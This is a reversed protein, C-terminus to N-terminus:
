RIGLRRRLEAPDPLLDDPQGSERRRRRLWECDDLLALVRERAEGGAAVAEAPTLGEEDRVALMKDTSLSRTLERALGELGEQLPLFHQEMIMSTPQPPPVDVGHRRQEAAASDPALGADEPEGMLEQATQTSRGIVVAGPAADRVHAELAAMRAESNATLAFSGSPDSRITGLNTLTGPEVKGVYEIQDEGTQCWCHSPLSELYARHRAADQIPPQPAPLCRNELTAWAAAADAVQVTTECFRYEEGDATVFRQPKLPSLELLLREPFRDVGGPAVPRHPFLECARRRQTRDVGVIGALAQLQAGDPLLRTVVLDLRDVSLSFLRDRLEVSQPGGVLSRLRLGSGHSVWTVEYLDLPITLWRGLLEREDARLLHGRDALFRQAAGGEFAALDLALMTAEPAGIACALVRDLTERRAGRQAYTAIMAYLAVARTALPHPLSRRDEEQCCVKYKRGSGCPCPRNRSVRGTGDAPLRLEELSPLMRDAVLDASISDALEWARAWNGACLEYEAADRVAPRLGPAAELCQEVLTRAQDACGAGEAARARLLLAAGRLAPDRLSAADVAALSAAWPHAAPKGPVAAAEVEDAVLNLVGAGGLQHRRATAGTDEPRGRGSAQAAFAAIVALFDAATEAPVSGLPGLDRHALLRGPLGLEVALQAARADDGARLAKALEQFRGRTGLLVM